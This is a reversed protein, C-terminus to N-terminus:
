KLSEFGANLVHFKAKAPNVATQKSQKNTSIFGSFRYEAEQTPHFTNKNKQNQIWVALTGHVAPILVPSPATILFGPLAQSSPVGVFPGHSLHCFCVFSILYFLCLVSYVDLFM